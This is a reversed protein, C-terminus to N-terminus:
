IFNETILKMILRVFKYWNELEKLSYCYLVKTLASGYFLVAWDGLRGGGVAWLEIFVSEGASVHCIRECIFECRLHVRPFSYIFPSVM